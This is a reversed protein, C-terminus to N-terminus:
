LQKILQDLLHKDSEGIDIIKFGSWSKGESDADASWLCEIGLSLILGEAPEIPIDVQYVAGDVIDKAGLLMMGEVSVNVIVGLSQASITDVVSLPSSVNFREHRRKESGM